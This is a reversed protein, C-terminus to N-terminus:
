AVPSVRVVYEGGSYLYETGSEVTRRFLPARRFIEQVYVTALTADGQHRHLLEDLRRGIARVNTSDPGQTVGEVQYVLESWVRKANVVMLDDQEVLFFRVLPTPDDAYGLFQSFVGNVMGMLSADAELYDHLWTDAEAAENLLVSSM